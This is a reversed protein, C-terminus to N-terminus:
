FCLDKGNKSFSSLAIKRDTITESLEVIRKIQNESDYIICHIGRGNPMRANTPSAYAVSGSGYVTYRGTDDPQSLFGEVLKRTLKNKFLGRTIIQASLGENHPAGVVTVVDGLKAHQTRFQDVRVGGIRADTKTSMGLYSATVQANSRPEIKRIYSAILVQKNWIGDIALWTSDNKIDSIVIDQFVTDSTVIVDSGLVSLSGDPALSASGLLPTIHRISNATWKDGDRVAEVVVTEGPKLSSAIRPGLPSTIPFNPPFDIIQGNVHISGLSNIIGVIGTGVIGGEREDNDEAAISSFAWMSTLVAILVSFKILRMM